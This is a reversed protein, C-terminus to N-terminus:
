PFRQATDSINPKPQKKPSRAKTNFIAELPIHHSFHTVHPKAEADRTMRRQYTKCWVRELIAHTLPSPCTGPPTGIKRYTFTQPPPKQFSGADWMDHRVLFEWARIKNDLFKRSELYESGRGGVFKGVHGEEHGLQAEWRM